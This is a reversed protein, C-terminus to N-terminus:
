EASPASAIGGAAAPAQAPVNAAFAFAVLAATVTLWRARGGSSRRTLAPIRTTM